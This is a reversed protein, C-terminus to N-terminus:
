TIIDSVWKITYSSLHGGGRGYATCRTMVLCGTRCGSFVLVVLASMQRARSYLNESPGLEPETIDPRTIMM